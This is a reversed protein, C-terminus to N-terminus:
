SIRLLHSLASIEVFGRSRRPRIAERDRTFFPRLVPCASSIPMILLDKSSKSRCSTESIMWARIRASREAASKNACHVLYRLKLFFAGYVDDPVGRLIIIEAGIKLGVIFLALRLKVPIGDDARDATMIVIRLDFLDKQGELLVLIRVGVLAQEPQPQFVANVAPLDYVAGSETIQSLAIGPLKDGFILRRIVKLQVVRQGIGMVAANQTPFHTYIFVAHLEQVLQFKRRLDGRLLDKRPRLFQKLAPELDSGLLPFLLVFRTRERTQLLPLVALATKTFETDAKGIVRVIYIAAGVDGAPRVGIHQM